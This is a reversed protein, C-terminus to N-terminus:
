FCEVTNLQHINGENYQMQQQLVKLKQLYCNNLLEILNKEREDIMKRVNVFDNHIALDCESKVNNLGLKIINQYVRLYLINICCLLM